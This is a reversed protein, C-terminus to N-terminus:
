VGDYNKLMANERLKDSFLNRLIQFATKSATHRSSTSETERQGRENVFLRYNIDQNKLHAFAFTHYLNYFFTIM